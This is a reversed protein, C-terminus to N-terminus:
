AVELPAFLRTATRHDVLTWGMPPSLRDAHAACLAYGTGPEVSEVLDDLRVLREGYDYSM